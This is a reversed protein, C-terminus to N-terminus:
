LIPCQLDTYWACDTTETDSSVPEHKNKLAYQIVVTSLSKGSHVKYERHIKLLIKEEKTPM